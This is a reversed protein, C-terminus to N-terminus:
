IKFPANKQCFFQFNDGQATQILDTLVDGDQLVAFIHDHYVATDTERFFVHVAHIQHDRVKGVQCGILFFQPAEEDGVTVLVVNTGNGIGHPLYIAGDMASRHGITQDLQLQFLMPQRIFDLQNGMLGSIHYFGAAEAYFENMHVVGNGICHGEGDACRHARHNKGAVEFNIGGGFVAHHIQGPQSLQAIVTHQRQQCIGGINLATAIGGAFFHNCLAQIPLKFVAILPNNNGGEGGVHVPNLGHQGGGLTIPPLYGHGAPAHLIHQFNGLLQAIQLDLLAGNHIKSGDLAQGLILNHDNGSARLAFIHRSQVAHREIGVLLHLDGGAVPDNNGGGGNGAILLRYGLDDILEVALTRIHYIFLAFTQVDRAVGALFLQFNDVSQDLGPEEKRDMALLPVQLNM